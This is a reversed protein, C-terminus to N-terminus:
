FPQQMKKEEGGMKGPSKLVGYGKVGEGSSRKEGSREKSGSRSARRKKESSRRM